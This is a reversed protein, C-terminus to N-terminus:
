ALLNSKSGDYAQLASPVHQVYARITRVDGLIDIRADFDLYFAKKMGTELAFLRQQALAAGPVQGMLQELMIQILEMMLSLYVCEEYRNSPGLTTAIGLCCRILRCTKYTTRVDDLDIGADIQTSVGEEDYGESLGLRQQNNPGPLVQSRGQRGWVM